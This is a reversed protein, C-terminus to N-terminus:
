PTAVSTAASRPQASSSPPVPPPDSPFKEAARYMRLVIKDSFWYSGVNMLVAFGFAMVTGQEGGFAGGILILIGSLLGLLIATKMGSM